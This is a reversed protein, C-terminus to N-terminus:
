HIVVFKGRTTKGEPTQVVFFYVGSAIVQNNRTTQLWETSYLESNHEITQVLQGSYSFVRITCEKPLNYFGLKMTAESGGSTTGQFGSRVFFPNPVVYVQELTETGGLQTQHLKLNTKGSRNGSQDVSVVAYYFSEGVRTAKDVFLYEGDRFYRPDAKAVTDLRTWPGTPHISKWVEYHSFAGQLRPVSFSEVAPKWGILNEALPSNTITIAPAPVPVPIRYVGREPFFEPWYPPPAPDGTYAHKAKDAVERITVVNSNVYDPLRYRSLYTSGYTYRTAGYAITDAWNPVPYFASDTVEGCDEGCSGGQDKLGALTEELRAAGYGAVEALAFRMKEGRALIYPGFMMVRGVAKRTQRHNFSGRGVWDKGYVTSNRIIPNRRNVVDLQPWMKSSRLNSTELRNTWPQKLKGTAPDWALASDSASMVASTQGPSALHAVDYYLTSFGVAQPSTLGGGYKNTSGWQDYYVPDPKGTMDINYNLWRTLDFRGRQDKREYNAYEWTNYVRQHGFMSPAFGYAFGVVIDRLTANSEITAPNGDRDGTNEIEYEYIIFDDYDPFSWARSTRSVTLGTPTAWQSFIIEEAEDPDYSPNLSGDALVPYNEARRLELPFSWVGIVIEPANSGAAGCMAWLRASTDPSSAALYVGGGLLNHQGDYAIGDTTLASNGPWEMLPVSTANGAQGQHYGRGIEGTNFITEHLMGRSHVQYLRSQGPLPAAACLLAAVLTLTRKM